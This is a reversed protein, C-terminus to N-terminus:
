LEHFIVTLNQPAVCTKTQMDINTTAAYCDSSYRRRREVEDQHTVAKVTVISIVATSQQVKEGIM